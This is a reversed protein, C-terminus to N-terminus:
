TLEVLPFCRHRRPPVLFNQRRTATTFRELGNEAEEVDFRKALDVAAQNRRMVEFFHATPFFASFQLKPQNSGDPVDMSDFGPGDIRIHLPTGDKARSSRQLTSLHGMRREGEPTGIGQASRRADGVGKFENPLFAPGGGDTHQDENGEDPVPTSRFMYQVRETFAADDGLEGGDDIDYFQQLDLIVHSLHQISGNDFYDGPEATTLRASRNGQFTVIQPPGAGDVHQDAFGMWMPSRPNVLRAFILDNTDAIRRPMGMQAFMARATTFRLMRTLPPSPVEKGALTDSGRLWNIVDRINGANDSRFTFLLDNTEIQVPVHFRVKRIERNGEWVDTPSPVAEEIVFRSTDFRLRPVHWFAASGRLGGPLKRFYPLGYAVHTFLGQPRLAYSSEIQELAQALMPQDAPRPRRRLKATVFATFVPGFQVEVGDVRRAPAILGGIDFQIDSPKGRVADAGHAETALRLPAWASGELLELAAVGLAVAGGTQLVARRSLKRHAEAARAHHVPVTPPPKRHLEETIRRHRAHEHRVDVEVEEPSTPAQQRRSPSASTSGTAISRDV